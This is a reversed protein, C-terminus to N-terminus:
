SARLRRVSTISRLCLAEVLLGLGLWEVIPIQGTIAAAVLGGATAAALTAAAWYARQLLVMNALFTGLGAITAAMAFDYAAFQPPVVIFRLAFITLFLMSGAVLFSTALDSKRGVPAPLTPQALPRVAETRIPEIPAPVAASPLAESRARQQPIALLSDRAPPALPFPSQLSLQDLIDDLPPLNSDAGTALRAKRTGARTPEQLGDYDDREVPHQMDLQSARLPSVMAAIEDKSVETTPFSDPEFAGSVDLGEPYAVTPGDNWSDTETSAFAAAVDVSAARTKESGWSPRRIDTGTGTAFDSPAAAVDSSPEEKLMTPQVHFGDGAQLKGM